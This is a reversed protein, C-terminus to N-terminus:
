DMVWAPAEVAVVPVGVKTEEGVTAEAIEGVAAEAIEGVTIVQVGHSLIAKDAETNSM